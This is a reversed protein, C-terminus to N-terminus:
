GGLGRVLAAMMARAIEPTIPGLMGRDEPRLHAGAEGPAGFVYHEFLSRWAARHAQPLDRLALIAHLMSDFPQTYGVKSDTWWYNVLVNFRELSEVHHWWLYPIYIADGPELEATQAAALATKLKPFAEFDPETLSPLSVPVGSLTYELPGVYLNAVQEPPFLTFRRRGAVVCGINDFVDYHAAVTIANGIWIRADVEPGLLPVANAQAFGQLHAAVSRSQIALAPPDADGARALILDLGQSITARLRKFNLQSFDDGFFFRGKISPDGSLLVAPEKLDMAKIYAAAAENSQRAAAVVPWDAVLGRLVVPQAAPVIEDHFVSREVGRREPINAPQIM